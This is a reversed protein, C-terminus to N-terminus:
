VRLGPWHAAARAPDLGDVVVVKTRGGAGAVLRVDRRPVGLEDALLRLLAHNAAGEVPPATVRARLVGDVVGDVRDAAARPTLRVTFRAEPTSV